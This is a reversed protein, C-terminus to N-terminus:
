YDIAGQSNINLVVSKNSVSITTSGASLAKGEQKSFVYDTTGTIVARSPIVFEIDDSTDRTGFNNGKFITVTPSAIHVGWEDDNQASQAYIQATRTARVSNTVAADLESNYQFRLLFPISLGAILAILAVSLLVESLTFANKARM